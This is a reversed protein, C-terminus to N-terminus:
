GQKRIQRLKAEYELKGGHSRQLKITDKLNGPQLHKSLSSIKCGEANSEKIRGRGGVNMTLTEIQKIYAAPPTNFCEGLDMKHKPVIRKNSDQGDLNKVLKMFSEREKLLLFSSFFYSFINVICLKCSAYM